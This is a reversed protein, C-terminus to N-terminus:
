ALPNMLSPLEEILAQDTGSSLDLDNLRLDEAIRWAAGRIRTEAEASSITGANKLSLIKQIQALFNESEEPSITEGQLNILKSHLTM